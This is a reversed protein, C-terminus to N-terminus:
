ISASMAGKSPSSSATNKMAMPMDISRLTTTASGSLSMAM